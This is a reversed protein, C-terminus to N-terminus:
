AMTPQLDLLKDLNDAQSTPAPEIPDTTKGALRINAISLLLGSYSFLISYVLDFHLLLTTGIDIVDLLIPAVLSFSQKGVFQAALTFLPALREIHQGPLMIQASENATAGDGMAIAVLAQQMAAADATGNGVYCIMKGGLQLQEILAARGEATPEMFYDDGGLEAVLKQTATEDGASLLHIAFKQKFIAQLPWARQRLQAFLLKAQAHTAPRRLVREDIILTNVLNLRELVRGDKILIGQEAALAVFNQVALPGLKNMYAGMSTTLFAAAHNAGLFPWTLAFTGWMLPAMGAGSTEGIQQFLTKNTSAQTLQTHLDTTQSARIPTEALVYLQGSRVITTALVSDGVQKRVAQLEGTALRQDVWASGYIVRGPQAIAEGAAIVLVDGPMITEPATAVEVGNVFVWPKTPPQGLLTTLQQEFKTDEQASWKKSVSQLCANLATVFHFGMVTCVTIRTADLVPSTFQRAKLSRWAEQYTPVFLYLAIPVGILGVAPQVFMGVTTLGLSVSSLVLGQNAQQQAAIPARRETKVPIARSSSARQLLRKASDRISQRMGYVKTGAYLTGGAALGFLSMIM